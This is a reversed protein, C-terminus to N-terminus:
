AAPAAGFSAQALDFTDFAELVADLRTISLIDRVRKSPNVLKLDGGKKRAGRSCSILTALGSSDIYKVEAMDVAIRNRGEGLLAQVKEQLRSTGDGLVVRGRLELLTVQDLSKEEIHLAM